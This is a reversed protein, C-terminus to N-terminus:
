SSSSAEVMVLKTNVAMWGHDVRTQVKGDSIRLIWGGRSSEERLTKPLFCGTGTLPSSAMEQLITVKEIETYVLLVGKEKM